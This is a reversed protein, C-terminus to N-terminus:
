RELYSNLLCWRYRQREAEKACAQVVAVYNDGNDSQIGDWDGNSSAIAEKLVVEAELHLQARDLEAAADLAAELRQIAQNIFNSM